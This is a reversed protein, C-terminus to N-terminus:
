SNYLITPVRGGRDAAGDEKKGWGWGDGERGQENEVTGEFGGEIVGESARRVM